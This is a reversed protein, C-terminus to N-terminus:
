VSERGARQGDSAGCVAETYQDWPYKLAPLGRVNEGEKILAMLIHETGTEKQGFRAAQRHAEELIKKARPSYGGRESLAVGGDFAILERIMNMVQSLEVGNDTLVRHAVGTQEKLLGALIHETGVYGQKLRSACKAGHNLAEQAKETFRSQM